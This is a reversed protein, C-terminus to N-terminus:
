DARSDPTLPLWKRLAEIWVEVLGDERMRYPLPQGRVDTTVVLQCWRRRPTKKKDAM